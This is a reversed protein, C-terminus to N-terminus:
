KIYSRIRKVTQDISLHANDIVHAGPPVALPDVERTADRGDRETLEKLAEGFTVHMGRREQSQQWRKARVDVPATLYFKYEAQPFVVTGLDRGEAVVNNERAVNYELTQVAKRVAPYASVISSSRDVQPSKLFPTIDRGHCIILPGTKPTYKYVIRDGTLVTNIDENHPCSLRDDTYNCESILCYALARFFLGTNLYVFGLDDALRRAVTSKGSSSPGDITIIM